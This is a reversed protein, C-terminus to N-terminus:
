GGAVVGQHVRALFKTRTRNFEATMEIGNIEAGHM